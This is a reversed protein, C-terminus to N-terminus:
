FLGIIFVTVMGAAVFTVTAGISRVSFRSIGCIGHGSTCGSGIATGFGVLLGAVALLPLSAVMVMEITGFALLYVVPGLITGILFAIRWSRGAGGTIAASAIGSVGMIRGNFAMLLVAALGILVGGLTSEIATFNAWDIQM